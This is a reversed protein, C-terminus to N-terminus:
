PTGKGYSNDARSPCSHRVGDGSAIIAKSQISGFSTTITLSIQEVSQELPFFM